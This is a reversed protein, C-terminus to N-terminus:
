FPLEGDLKDVPYDNTTAGKVFFTDSKHVEFDDVKMVDKTADVGAKTKYAELVLKGTAAIVDGKALRAANKAQPGFVKASIFRTPAPVGDRQTKVRPNDAVRLECMGIGTEFYKPNDVLRAKLLVYTNSM